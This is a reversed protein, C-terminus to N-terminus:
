PGHPFPSGQPFPKSEQPFAEYGLPFPQSSEPFSPHGLTTIQNFNQSQRLSEYLGHPGDLEDSGEAIDDICDGPFMADNGMATVDRFVRDM